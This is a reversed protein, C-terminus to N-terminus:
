NIPMLISLVKNKVNFNAKINENDVAVPIFLDLPNSRKSELFLRDKGVSLIIDKATIVNPLHFEGVLLHKQPNESLRFVPAISSPKKDSSSVESVLSLLKKDKPTSPLEEILCKTTIDGDRKLKIRHPKLVGLCKRNKLVVYEEKELTVNYKDQIGELIVQLVFSQWIMSKQLTGYFKSNVAVDYVTTPKGSKDLEDHPDQISLPVRYDSVEESQWLELVEDETISKPEPIEDLQCLNIFVKQRKDDRTKVCCGPKPQAYKWPVSTESYGTNSRFFNEIKDADSNLSSPILFNSELLNPDVELFNSM